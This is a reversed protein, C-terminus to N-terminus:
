LFPPSLSFPLYFFTVVILLFCFFLTLLFPLAYDVLSFAFITVHYYVDSSFFTCHNLSDLMLGHVHSM